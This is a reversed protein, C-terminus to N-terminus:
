TPPWESPPAPKNEQADRCKEGGTVADSDFDLLRWDPTVVRAPQTPVVLPTWWAIARACERAEVNDTIGPFLRRVEVVAAFKGSQDFAIRIAAADSESVLFM